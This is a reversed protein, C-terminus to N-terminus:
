GFAIQCSINLSSNQKILKFMSRKEFYMEWPCIPLFGGNLSRNAHVSSFYVNHALFFPLIFFYRKCRQNDRQVFVNVLLQNLLPAMHTFCTGWYIRENKNQQAKNQPIVLEMYIGAINEGINVTVDYHARHRRLDGAERYNVWGSTWACILSFILAGRWQGKHPSNVPSRLIGRVLPGTVRFINGNM